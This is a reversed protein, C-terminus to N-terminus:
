HMTGAQNLVAISAERLVQLGALLAAERETPAYVYSHGNIRARYQGRGRSVILFGFQRAWRKAHLRSCLGDTISVYGDGVALLGYPDVLKPIAAQDDQSINGTAIHAFPVEIHEDANRRLQQDYYIRSPAAM